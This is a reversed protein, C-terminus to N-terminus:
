PFGLEQDTVNIVSKQFDLAPGDCRFFNQLRTTNLM